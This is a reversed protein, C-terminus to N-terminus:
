NNSNNVCTWLERKLVGWDQGIRLDDAQLAQGTKIQSLNGKLHPHLISYIFYRTKPTESLPNQIQTLTQPPKTALDHGIIKCGWPSGARWTGKDMPNGLCPYQCPNGNEEGPSRGLGPISSPDGANCAEKGVSGGLSYLLVICKM